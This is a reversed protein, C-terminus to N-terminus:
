ILLTKSTPVTFSCDTDGCVDVTLSVIDGTSDNTFSSITAPDPHWEIRVRTSIFKSTTFVIRFKLSGRWYRFMSAYNALPTIAYTNTTVQCCRMPNIPLKMILQNQVYTGDFDNTLLLAPRLKYNGFLHSPVPECFYSTDNSVMNAPDCGLQEVSDLGCTHALSSTQRVIMPQVAAVSSPEDLGIAQTTATIQNLISVAQSAVGGVIPLSMFKAALRSTAETVGSILVQDSKQIQEKLMQKIPLPEICMMPFPEVEPLTYLNEVQAMCYDFSDYNCTELPLSHTLTKPSWGLSQKGKHRYEKRTYEKRAIPDLCYMESVSDDHPLNIVYLCAALITLIYANRSVFGFIWGPNPEIGERTLDRVYSYGITKILRLM